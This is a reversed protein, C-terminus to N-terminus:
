IILVLHLLDVVNMFSSSRASRKLALNTTGKLYGRFCGASGKKSEKIEILKLM